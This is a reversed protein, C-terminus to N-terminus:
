FCFFKPLTSLFSIVLDKINLTTVRHPLGIRFCFRIRLGFCFYLCPASVSVPVSVSVFRSAFFPTLEYLFLGMNRISGYDSVFCLRFSFM